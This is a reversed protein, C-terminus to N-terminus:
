VVVSVATYGHASAVTQACTTVKMLNPDDGGLPLLARLSRAGPDPQVGGNQVCELIEPLLEADIEDVDMLYYGQSILAYNDAQCADSIQQGKEDTMGDWFIDLERRWGDLPNIGHDVVRLGEAALCDLMRETAADVEARTVVLDSLANVAQEDNAARAQELVQDVTTAASPPESSCATLSLLALLSLALTAFRPPNLMM